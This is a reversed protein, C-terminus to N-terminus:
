TSLSVKKFTAYGHRRMEISPAYVIVNQLNQLGPVCNSSEFAQCAPCVFAFDSGHIETCIQNGHYDINVNM